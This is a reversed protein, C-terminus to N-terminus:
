SIELIKHVENTNPGGSMQHEGKSWEVTKMKKLKKALNLKDTNWTALIGQAACEGNRDWRGERGDNMALSMYLHLIMKIITVVLYILDKM